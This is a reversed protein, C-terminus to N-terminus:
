AAGEASWRLALYGGPPAGTSDGFGDDSVFGLRRYLRLADRNDQWVTLRLHVGARAASACLRELVLSGLGRGRWHERIALDLLRHEEVGEALYCRGVPEAGGDDDVLLIWDVADPATRRYQTLQSDFQLDILPGRVEDPLLALEPRSEAFLRRLFARDAAGAPRQSLGESIASGNQV